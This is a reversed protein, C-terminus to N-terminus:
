KNNLESVHYTNVESPEKHNHNPFLIDKGKIKVDKWSEDEDDFWENDRRM